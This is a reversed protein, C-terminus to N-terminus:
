HTNIIIVMFGSVLDNTFYLYLTFVLERSGSLFSCSDPSVTPFFQPHTKQQLLIELLFCYAPDSHKFYLSWHTCSLISGEDEIVKKERSEVKGLSRNSFSM